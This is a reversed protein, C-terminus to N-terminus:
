LLNSYKEPPYKIFLEEGAAIDRLARLQITENANTFNFRLEVNNDDSHNLKSTTESLFSIGCKQGKDNEYKCHFFNTVVVDFISLPFKKEKDEDKLRDLCMKLLRKDPEGM